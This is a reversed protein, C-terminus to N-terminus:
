SAVNKVIAVKDNWIHSTDPLQQLHAATVLFTECQECLNKPVDQTICVCQAGCSIEVLDLVM